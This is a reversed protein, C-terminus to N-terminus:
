PPIDAGRAELVGKLVMLHDYLLPAYQKAIPLIEQGQVEWKYGPEKARELHRLVTRAYHDTVMFAELVEADDVRPLEFKALAAALTEATGLAALLRPVTAADLPAKGPYNDPVIGIGRRQVEEDCLHVAHRHAQKVYQCLNLLFRDYDKAADREQRATQLKHARDVSKAAFWIAGVSAWVQVWAACDGRDLDWLIVCTNSIYTNWLEGIM